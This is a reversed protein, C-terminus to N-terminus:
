LEGERELIRRYEAATVRVECVPYTFGLQRLEDPDTITYMRPPYRKRKKM